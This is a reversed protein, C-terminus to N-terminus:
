DIKYVTKIMNLVKKDIPFELKNEDLTGLNMWEFVPLNKLPIKSSNEINNKLRATYYISILQEKNNFQSIQFFDTTYFHEVDLLQRNMEENFERKLGDIIGEGFELGGGPFKYIEKGFILEKSLLIADDKVILGYVRINFSSISRNM